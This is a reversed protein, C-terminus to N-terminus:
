NLNNLNRKRLNSVRGRHDNMVLLVNNRHDPDQTLEAVKPANKVAREAAGRLLTMSWRYSMLGAVHDDHDNYLSPYVQIWALNNAM